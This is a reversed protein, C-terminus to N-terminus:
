RLSRPLIASLNCKVSIAADTEPMEAVSNLIGPASIGTYAMTRVFVDQYLIDECTIGEPCSIHDGIVPLMSALYTVIDRVLDSDVGIMLSVNM